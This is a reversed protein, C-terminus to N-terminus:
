FTFYFTAGKGAEGEAWVRGGHRRIIREVTALGIGHGKASDATGTLRQFPTFLKVADEMDFGPGNDRVFWVPQGDIETMGFEIIAEEKSRTYKWANGLLNELVVQLLCEDGKASMGETIRFTVRHAPDALKLGAAVTQAIGSLDVMERSLDKQILRSFNLLTDILQNMRCTSDYAEQLYEKCQDDLKDGNQMLVLQCFGNIVTLPTRLDHAVTYNFTELKKNAAELEAARAALEANLTEIKSEARKRETINTLSGVVAVTTGNEVLPTENVEVWIKRGKKGVCEVQYPPQREGTDIARQTAEIAHRNVPNDTILEMWRVMAEEPECDFFQRSQPSVYTLLHDTTHMYFLNTSHEVIDRLRQETERLTKEARKSETVDRIATIRLQQAQQAITKGHAEVRRRSGDKCLMEHEIQSEKGHLINALVRDREEPPLLDAVQRGLLESREFGLIQAFQYNVDLIRGQETIAIGESTAEALTRFRQESERLATAAKERETIDRSIGVLGAITGAPGYFPAKLSDLLVRTGDPYTVWEEFRQEIGTAFVQRDKEQINEAFDRDFFDFDTKGIQESEKLGIFKESSLNCALYVCELDKVYILDAVSDIIPIRLDHLLQHKEELFLAERTAKEQGGSEKNKM